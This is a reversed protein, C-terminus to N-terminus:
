GGNGQMQSRFSDLLDARQQATMAGFAQTFREQDQASLNSMVVRYVDGDSLDGSSSALGAQIPASQVPGDDTSATPESTSAVTTPDVPALGAPPDTVTAAVPPLDSDITADDEDASLPGVDFESGDDYEGSPSSAIPPTSSAGQKALLVNLEAAYDRGQARASATRTEANTADWRGAALIPANPLSNDTSRVYYTGVAPITIAVIMLGVWLRTKNHPM